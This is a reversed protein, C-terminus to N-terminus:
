QAAADPTRAKRAIFVPNTWAQDGQPGVIEVRLYTEGGRLEFRAETIFEGTKAQAFDGAYSRCMFKIISAPSCQVQFYSGDRRFQHIEVGTSSYFLGGRLAAIIAEPTNAEAKVMVWARGADARRWHCDDAAVGNLPVLHGLAYDWPYEAHGRCLEMECGTNFVEIAHVGPFARLDEGCLNSWNPHALILFPTHRAAWEFLPAPRFGRPADASEPLLAVLHWWKAEQRSNADWEIGPIVTLGDPAPRALQTIRWHDTLAIFDFGQRRYFAAAEDATVKGDSATTHIHLAGKLWRGPASFANTGDLM